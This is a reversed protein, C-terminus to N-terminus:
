KDAVQTLASACVSRIEPGSLTFPSRLGKSAIRAVAAGTTEGKGLVAPGWLILWALHIRQWITV